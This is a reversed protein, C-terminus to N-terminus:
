SWNRLEISIKNDGPNYLLKLVRILSKGYHILADTTSSLKEYKSAGTSLIAPASTGIGYAALRSLNARGWTQKTGEKCRFSPEIKDTILSNSIFHNHLYLVDNTCWLSSTVSRFLITLMLVNRRQDKFPFSFLFFPSFHDRQRESKSYSVVM